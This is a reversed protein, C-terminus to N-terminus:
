VLIHLLLAPHTSPSHSSHTGRTHPQAHILVQKQNILVRRFRIIHTPIHLVLINQILQSLKQAIQRATRSIKHLLIGARTHMRIRCLEIIHPPGELFLILSLILHHSPLSPSPLPHTYTRTETESWLATSNM